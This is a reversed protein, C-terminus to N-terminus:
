DRGADPVEKLVIPASAVDPARLSYVTSRALVLQTMGHLVLSNLREWAIDKPIVGMKRGFEFQDRLEDTRTHTRGARDAIGVFTDVDSIYDTALRNLDFLDIIIEPALVRQEEQRVWGSARHLNKGSSKLWFFARIQAAILELVLERQDQATKRSLVLHVDAVGRGVSALEPFNRVAATPIPEWEAFADIKGGAMARLPDGGRLDVLELASLDLGNRELVAMLAHLAGEGLTYGMRRGKLDAVSRAGRCVFAAYGTQFRSVIHVPQCSALRVTSIGSIVAGDLGRDFAEVCSRGDTFPVFVLRTGTRVLYRELVRDRRMVELTHAAPVMLPQYGIEISRRFHGYTPGTSYSKPDGVLQLEPMMSHETLFFHIWGVLLLVSLAGLGGVQVGLSLRM